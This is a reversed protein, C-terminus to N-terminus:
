QKPQEGALRAVEVMLKPSLRYGLMALEALIPSIEALLARQKAALLVGAVGVVPLGRQKAVTRGQWDDILLFQCTVQEALLIAEAEGADLLRSLTTLETTDHVTQARLWGAGIAQTLAQAGPRHTDLQLERQVASPILVEGYLQQLLSLRQIRALAILPGADAVIMM